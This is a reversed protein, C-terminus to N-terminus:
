EVRDSKSSDYDYYYDSYIEGKEVGNLVVGLLNKKRFESVAKEALEYDTKGARVIFLVGDCHDALASADHVPLTPPSDILVWDFWNSAWDFLKVLRENSLLESPNPAEMGCPIMCLNGEQGQQIIGLEDTDGQLYETLGPTSPAGMAIHVRPARLDADILLVRRNVQRAMSQALNLAVFTKGEVPLSSTILIRNLKRSSAIQTLRSRLTRFREASGKDLTTESFVNIRPDLNWTPHSCNKLIEDFSQVPAHRLVPRPPVVPVVPQESVKRNEEAKPKVADEVSRGASEVEEIITAQPELTTRKANEQAARKLAEHIRSM